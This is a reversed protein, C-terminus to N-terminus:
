AGVGNQNASSQAGLIETYADVLPSVTHAWNYKETVADRGRKGIAPWSDRAQLLRGAAEAFSTSDGARFVEGCEVERVIRELPRCDSVIVPRRCYMYQFLKHPITADTHATRLHPVLCIDSRDIYGRVRNLSQWGHFVVREGLGLRGARDELRSRTRGDGVLHLRVSPHSRLLEPMADVVTELGRHRDIGGAYLIATEDPDRYGIPEDDLSEFEGIALTNPVIVIRHSDVGNLQNREAAEEVVVILRDVSRTWKRELREWRKFSILARAPFRNSWEYGRLAEVWNEHLDGVIPVNLRQAARLGGGFLYLDHVHLADFPFHRRVRSIERSLYHTYVPVTGALGRMKNRLSGPIRDRFVQIGKHEDRAPRPDPGIALLGVDFGAEILSRAENEVRIDTPFSHDLVMLIRNRRGRM